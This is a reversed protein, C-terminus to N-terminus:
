VQSQQLSRMNSFCSYSVCSLISGTLLQIKSIKSYLSEAVPQESVAEHRWPIASRYYWNWLGSQDHVAEWFVQDRFKCEILSDPSSLDLRSENHALVVSGFPYVEKATSVHYTLLESLSEHGNAIITGIRERSRLTVRSLSTVASSCQELHYMSKWNSTYQIRMNEVFLLSCCELWWCASDTVMGRSCLLAIIQEWLLSNQELTAVECLSWLLSRAHAVLELTRKDGSAFLNSGTKSQLPICM